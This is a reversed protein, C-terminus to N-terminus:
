KGCCIFIDCNNQENIWYYNCLLKSLSMITDYLDKSVRGIAWEGVQESAWEGVRGSAWEGM